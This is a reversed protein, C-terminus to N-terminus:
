RHLKKPPPSLLCAIFQSMYNSRLDPIHSDSKYHYERLGIVAVDILYRYGRLERGDGEMRVRM